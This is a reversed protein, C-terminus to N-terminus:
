LYDQNTSIRLIKEETIIPIYQTQQKSINLNCKKLNRQPKSHTNM